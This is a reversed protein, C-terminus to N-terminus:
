VDEKVGEAKVQSYGAAVMNVLFFGFDVLFWWYDGRGLAWGSLFWFVFALFLSLKVNFEHHTRDKM